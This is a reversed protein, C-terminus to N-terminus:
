KAFSLEPANMEFYKFKGNLEAEYKTVTLKGTLFGITTGFDTKVEATNQGSTELDFTQPLKFPERQFDFKFLVTVGNIGNFVSSVHSINGDDKKTPASLLLLEIKSGNFDFTVGGSMKEPTVGEKEFKFTMSATKLDKMCNMNYFVSTKEMNAFCFNSHTNGDCGCVPLYFEDCAQPAQRCEGEDNCLGDFKNCFFDEGCDSSKFCSDGSTDDEDPYILEEDSVVMNDNSSEDNLLEEDTVQDKDTIDSEDNSDDVIEQDDTKDMTDKPKTVSNECSIFLFVSLFIMFVTFNRM